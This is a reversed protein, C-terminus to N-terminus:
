LINYDINYMHELQTIGNQQIAKQKCFKLLLM